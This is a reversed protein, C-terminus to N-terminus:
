AESAGLPYFVGSSWVGFLAKGDVEHDEGLEVLQYYVARNLRAELGARVHIYPVEEGTVPCNGMRLPHDPGLTVMEDVNSRFSLTRSQGSGSAFLEVMVFPVDEVEITGKEGPTILWYSGDAKREMISSFLCVMEKRAIPSNQYYWQGNRDIRINLHGCQNDGQPPDTLFITAM